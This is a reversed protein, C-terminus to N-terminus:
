KEVTETCIAEAEGGSEHPFVISLDDNSIMELIIKKLLIFNIKSLMGVKRLLRKGDLLRIQSIIARNEKKNIPPIPIYYKGQKKKSTLPIGLFLSQNFKKLVIVPRQFEDGKGGQEYGINKGMRLFWIEREHFYRMMSAEHTEKKQENWVDFVERETM